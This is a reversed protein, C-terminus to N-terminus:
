PMEFPITDPATGGEGRDKERPIDIDVDGFDDAGLDADNLDSPETDSLEFDSPGIDGDVKPQSETLTQYYASLHDIESRSFSSIPDYPHPNTLWFRFWEVSRGPRLAIEAFPPGPRLGGGGRAGIKHCSSCLDQALRLGTTPNGRPIFEGDAACLGRPFSYVALGFVFGPLFLLTPWSLRRTM